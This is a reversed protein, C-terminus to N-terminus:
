NTAIPNEKKQHKLVSKSTDTNKMLYLGGIIPIATHPRRSIMYQRRHRSLIM